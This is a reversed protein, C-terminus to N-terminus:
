IVELTLTTESPLDTTLSIEIATAPLGEGYASWSIARALRFEGDGRIRYAHRQGEIVAGQEVSRVKQTTHIRRCVRHRGRGSVRDKIIMRGPSFSWRRQIRGLESIRGYGDFTLEVGDDHRVLSPLHGGVRQRFANRYYPRNQPYPDHRDLTLGNHREASVYTAADGSEGYAGRGPDIVLRAGDHHLEFSGIDQHGHGPMPSWGEPAVHWLGSWGDGEFRLWGDRMLDDPSLPALQSKLDDLMHRQKEDLLLGWGHALDGNPLLCTLFEPPCDPSIDGILPVGGPLELAAGAKLAAATVAKLLPAEPRDYAEAVLWANAYNRTLLLHYHSSGERLMGSPTFIRSAEEVLIKGGIDACDAIGLALGLHFLARGNNSLHNSTYHEGNYELRRLIAPFHAALLRLTDETRGPLGVRRSYDLINIVREAATYPHWSWDDSPDGHHASWGRWVAEVWGPEVDDGALPLWAFRHVALATELDEWERCVFDQEAGCPVEFRAGPLRVTLTDRPPETVLPRFPAVSAESPRPPKLIEGLYPPHGSDFRAIAPERGLVRAAIWRRLVPDGMFQNVKRGLAGAPLRHNLNKFVGAMRRRPSDAHNM